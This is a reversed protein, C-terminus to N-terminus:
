GRLPCQGGNLGRCVAGLAPGKMATEGRELLDQLHPLHPCTKDEGGVLEHRARVQRHGKSRKETKM